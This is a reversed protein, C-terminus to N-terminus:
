QRSAAIADAFCQHTLNKGLCKESCFEKAVNDHFTPKGARAYLQSSIWRLDDCGNWPAKEQPSISSEQRHFHEAVVSVYDDWESAQANASLLFAATAAILSLSFFKM